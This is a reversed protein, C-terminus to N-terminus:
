SGIMTRSRARIASGEGPKAEFWEREFQSRSTRRSINLCSNDETAMSYASFPCLTTRTSCITCEIKWTAEWGRPQVSRSIRTSWDGSSEQFYLKTVNSSVITKNQTLWYSWERKSNRYLLSFNRKSIISVKIEEWRILFGTSSLYLIM